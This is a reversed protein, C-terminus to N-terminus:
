KEQAALLGGSVMLYLLIAPFFLSNVFISHILLGCLAALFGLGLATKRKQWALLLLNGLFFLFAALGLTGTTAGINLLSADSGTAAHSTESAFTQHFKYSGYGVGLLLNEKWIRLGEDWSEFRLQATPDLVQQSSGGFSTVSQALEGIRESLRSSVGMGVIGVIILAILLKRNGVLGLILGSVGLAVLGSRSYTLLLAVLMIGALLVLWAQKFFERTKLIKGGLLALLFAFGGAAFNPDLWTSTLRGIHPDWGLDALGAEAFDPITKFLYFGILALIGGALILWNVVKSKQKASDQAIFFFSGVAIFRILYLLAFKFEGADLGAAGVLLSLIAIALFAILSANVKTFHFTEKRILKRALWVLMVVPTVIDLLLLSNGMIEIRGFEGPLTALIAAFIGFLPYQYCVALFTAVGVLLLVEMPHFVAATAIILVGLSLPIKGREFVPNIKAQM